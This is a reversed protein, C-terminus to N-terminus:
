GSGLGSDTALLQVASDPNDAKENSVSLSKGGAALHTVGSFALGRRKRDLATSRTQRESLVRGDPYAPFDTKGRVDPKVSGNSRKFILNSIGTM